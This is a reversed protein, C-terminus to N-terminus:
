LELNMKSEVGFFVFYWALVGRVLLFYRSTNNTNSRAYQTDLILDYIDPVTVRLIRFRNIQM